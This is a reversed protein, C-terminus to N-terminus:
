VHDLKEDIDDRLAVFRGYTELADKEITEKHAATPM